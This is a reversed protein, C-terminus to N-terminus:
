KRRRRLRKWWPRAHYAVMAFHQEWEEDCACTPSGCRLCRYGNPGTNNGTPGQGLRGDWAERM